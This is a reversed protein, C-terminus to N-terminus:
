FGSPQHERAARGDRVDPRALIPLTDRFVRGMIIYCVSDLHTEVQKGAETLFTENFEEDLEDGLTPKGPTPQDPTELYSVIPLSWRLPV